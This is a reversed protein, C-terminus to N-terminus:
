GGRDICVDWINHWRQPIPTMSWSIIHRACANWEKWPASYTKLSSRCWSQLLLFIDERPWSSTLKTWGSSELGGFSSQRGQTSPTSFTCTSPKKNRVSTGHISIELGRTLLNNGVQPCNLYLNRRGYEPSQTSQSDLETFPLDMGASVAVSQQVREYLSSSSRQHKELRVQTGVVKSLNLAFPRDSSRAMESLNATDGRKM